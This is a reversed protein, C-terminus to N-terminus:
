SPFWILNRVPVQTEFVRYRYCRWDTPNTVSPDITGGAWTPAATTTGCVFTTPDPKEPQDSRALVAIRMALVRAWSAPAATTWEGAQITGDNNTDYGYQAQLQVIGDVTPSAASDTILNQYSLQGNVISYTGVVPISTVPPNAPPAAGFTFVRGGTVTTSDWAPYAVGLGAPDNYRRTAGSGSSHDITNPTATAPPIATVQRMTCNTAPSAGSNGVIILDGQLFGYVSDLGSSSAGTASSLTLKGPQILMGSTGYTFTLSDPAGSAGDTMSVAVLPFTFSRTGVSDYASVTCGLLPLYNIGYGAMRADRELTTLAILGNQQAEGAGTATRKTGEFVAFVQFIVVTGILGILVAVMLEVLSFGRASRRGAASPSPVPRSM